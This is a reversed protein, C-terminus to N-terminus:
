TSRAQNRLCSAIIKAKEIRKVRFGPVAGDDGYRDVPPLGIVQWRVRFQSPGCRHANGDIRTREEMETLGADDVRSRRGGIRAIRDVIGGFSAEAGSLEGFAASDDFCAPKRLLRPALLAMGLRLYDLAPDHSGVVGADDVSRQGHRRAGIRNET